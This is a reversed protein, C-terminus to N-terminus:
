PPITGSYAAGGFRVDQFIKLISCIPVSMIYIPSDGPRAVSFALRSTDGALRRADAVQIQRACCKSQRGQIPMSEYCCGKCKISAAQAANAISGKAQVRKFAGFAVTFLSPRFRPPQGKPLVFACFYLFTM